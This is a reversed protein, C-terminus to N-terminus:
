CCRGPARTRAASSASWRPGACRTSTKGIARLMLEAAGPACLHGLAEVEARRVFPWPEQKAGAILAAASQTDGQKGLALAATERVRPDKDDLAARLAPRSDVGAGPVLAALERTALYRLVPDDGRERVEALAGPDGAGGANGAGDRCARAGRLQARAGARARLSGVAEARRGPDRKVVAPLARLLDAERAGGDHPGRRDRDLVTEGRLKPARGIAGVVAARV